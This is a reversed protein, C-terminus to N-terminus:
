KSPPIVRITLEPPPGVPDGYAGFFYVYGTAVNTFGICIQNDILDISWDHASVDLVFEYSTIYTTFPIDDALLVDLSLDGPNVTARDWGDDASYYVDVLPNAYPSDYDNELYCLLKMEAVVAGDPITSVDFLLYGNFDSGVNYARHRNDRRIDGQSISVSEFPNLTFTEPVIAPDAPNRGDCGTLTVVSLMLTLSVATTRNM